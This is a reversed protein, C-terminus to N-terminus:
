QRQIYPTWLPVVEPSFYSAVPLVVSPAGGQWLNWPTPLVHAHRIDQMTAPCQDLVVTRAPAGLTALELPVIGDGVLPQRSGGSRSSSEDDDGSTPNSPEDYLKGTLPFYSAAAVFEEVNATLFKGAIAKSAVCTVQIGRQHLAEASCAPTEDVVQLLGRTQDVLATEPSAHPTGLTVLSTIRATRFLSTSSQSLGGLYARAVWGGISHGVLCIEADPGQEQLIDGIATELANFYWDLTSEVPLKAQIFELSPLKKAVKIWETRPLPAVRCTGINMNNNDTLQQFFTEYDAPVCFQAPCVVVNIIPKTGQLNNTPQEPNNTARGIVPVPDAYLGDNQSAGGIVPVPESYLDKRLQTAQLALSSPFSSSSSGVPLFSLRPQFAQVGCFFLFEAALVLKM